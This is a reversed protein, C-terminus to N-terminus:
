DLLLFSEPVQCFKATLTHHLLPNSVKHSNFIFMLLGDVHYQFLLMCYSVMGM